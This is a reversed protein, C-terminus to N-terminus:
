VCILGPWIQVVKYIVFVFLIECEIPLHEYIQRYYSPPMRVGTVEIKPSPILMNRRFVQCCLVIKCTAFRKSDLSFFKIKSRSVGTRQLHLRSHARSCWQRSWFTVCCTHKLPAYLSKALLVSTLPWASDTKKQGTNHSSNFCGEALHFLLFFLM